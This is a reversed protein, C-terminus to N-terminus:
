PQLSRRFDADGALEAAMLKLAVADAEDATDNPVAKYVTAMGGAGLRDVLRYRGVSKGVNPDDSTVVMNELRLLREREQKDRKRKPLYVLVLFLTGGVAVVEFPIISLPREKHLVKAQELRNSIGGAAVMEVPEKFYEPTIKDARVPPLKFDEYGTRRLLLKVEGVKDMHIFNSLDVMYQNHHQEQNETNGERGMDVLIADSPFVQMKLEMRKPIFRGSRVEGVSFNVYNPIFDKRVFIIFAPKGPQVTSLDLKNPKGLELEVKPAGATPLFFAKEAKDSIPTVVGEPAAM